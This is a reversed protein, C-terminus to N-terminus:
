KITPVKPTRQRKVKESIERNVKDIRAKEFVNKIRKEQKKVKLGIFALITLIVGSIVLIWIVWLLVTNM